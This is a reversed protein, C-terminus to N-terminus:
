RQRAQQERWAYLLRCANIPILASHLIFIPALHLAGSYILFAVNSCLAAVRLPVMDKMYFTMFVLSAAIYGDLDIWKM